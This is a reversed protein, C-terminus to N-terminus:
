TGGWLVNLVGHALVDLLVEIFQQKVSIHFVQYRVWVKEDCGVFAITTPTTSSGFGILLM